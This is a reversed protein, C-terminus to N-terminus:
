VDNIEDINYSAHRNSNIPNKFEKMAIQLKNIKYKYILMGIIKIVQYVLLSFAIFNLFDTMGNRNFFTMLYGSFINCVLWIFFIFLRSRKYQKKREQQTKIQKNELTINKQYKQLDKDKSASRNGWTVDHLNAYSYFQFVIMYLPIMSIYVLISGFYLTINKCCRIRDFLIPPLFFTAAFILMLLASLFSSFFEKFAFIIVFIYICGLIITTLKLLISIYKEDINKGMGFSTIILFIFILIILNEIFNPIMFPNIQDSSTFMFRLFSSVSGYFLGPAIFGTFNSIMMLLFNIQYFIKQNLSHSSSAFKGCNGFIHLFTANAGNIWRRRQAMLKWFLDPPDTLAVAGPLYILDYNAQKMDNEIINQSVIEFCMIRDEALFMNLERLGLHSKDLGKFFQELPKQKIAVWRFISFAGPLVSQYGFCGEFSKDIYHSLKYEYFQAASLISFKPMEVEIEGCAGGISQKFDLLKVLKSISGPLAQTGIDLLLVQDPNLYECFGRYFYLHSDIKQNNFHKVAFIFNVQNKVFGGLSQDIQFDFVDLSIQSQFCHIINMIPNNQDYMQDETELKININEKIEFLNMLEERKVSHELRKLFPTIVSEDFIGLRTAEEKFDKKLNKYGDAILVILIKDKFQDWSIQNGIKMQDLYIDIIAQFVGLVTKKFLSWGENYMTIGIALKIGNPNNQKLQHLLSKKWINCIGKEGGIGVLKLDYTKNSSDLKSQAFNFLKLTQYTLQTSQNLKRKTYHHKIEKSLTKNKNTDMYLEKNLTEDFKPDRALSDDFRLNKNTSNM